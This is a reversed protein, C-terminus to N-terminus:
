LLKVEIGRAQCAAKLRPHGLPGSGMILTKLSVLAGGAKEATPHIAEALATIGADGHCGIRFNCALNL